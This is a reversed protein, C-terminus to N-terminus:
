ALDKSRSPHTAYRRPATISVEHQEARGFSDLM